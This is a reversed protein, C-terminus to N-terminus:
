RGQQMAMGPAGGRAAVENFAAQHLYAGVPALLFLLLFGVGQSYKGHVKAAGGAYSWAFLIPGLLPVLFIWGTVIGTNYKQNMENKTSLYWGFLWILIGAIPVFM